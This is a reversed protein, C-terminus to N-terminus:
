PRPHLKLWEAVTNTYEKFGMELKTLRLRRRISPLEAMFNKYRKHIASPGPITQNALAGALFNRVAKIALETKGAHASIDQGAIDSCYKQYDYRRRELILCTKKRQRADGYRKAGLFMGLELPMNFRPLGSDRDLQTRSIDHIGYRCESIIDFIKSVRVRSADNSELACRVIFGCDTVAFVISQFLEAYKSDFPCNVFVYLDDSVPAAKPM